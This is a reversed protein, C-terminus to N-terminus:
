VDLVSYKVIKVPKNRKNMNDIMNKSGRSQGDWFVIAEDAYDAMQANRIVGAKKGLNHWDANFIKLPINNRKAYTEGLMDAGRAGGSVIEDNTGVGHQILVRTLLRYKQFERGGAVIIKSM